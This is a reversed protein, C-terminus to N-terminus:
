TELRPKLRRMIPAGILWLVIVLAGVPVIVGAALVIGSLIALTISKATAVAREIAPKEPPPPPAAGTLAVDITSYSTAGEVYSKNQQLRVLDDKADAIDQRLEFIEARDDTRDLRRLLSAVRQQALQVKTRAALFDDSLDQGELRQRMMRGIGALDNVVPEFNPSPVKIKVAGYGYGDDLDVVSSALYGGTKPDTALDVVEQAASSLEDGPVELEVSAEKVVSPGRDTAGSASGYDSGAEPAGIPEEMSVGAEDGDGACAAALLAVIVVSFAIRRVAM